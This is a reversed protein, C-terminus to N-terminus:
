PFTAPLRGTLRLKFAASVPQKHTCAPYRNCVWCPEEDRTLRGTRCLRITMEGIKDVPCRRGPEKEAIALIKQATAPDLM